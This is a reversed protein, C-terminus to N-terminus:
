RLGALSMALQRRCSRAARELAVPDTCLPSPLDGAPPVVELVFPASAPSASRHALERRTTRSSRVQDAIVQHVGPYRRDYARSVVLEPVSQRARAEAPRTSSLVLVHTADAALASPVPVPETLSGDFLVEGDVRPPSGALLPVHCSARLHGLLEDRGSRPELAVTVVQSPSSALVRLGGHDLVCRHDLPVEDHLVRGFLVDLDM